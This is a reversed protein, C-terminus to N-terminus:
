LHMSMNVRAPERPDQVLWVGEKDRGAIFVSLSVGSIDPLHSSSATSRWLQDGNLRFDIAHLGALGQDDSVLILSYGDRKFEHPDQIVLLQHRM